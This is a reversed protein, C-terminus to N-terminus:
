IYIQHTRFEVIALHIDLHGINKVSSYMYCTRKRERGSIIPRNGMTGCAYMPNLKKKIHM